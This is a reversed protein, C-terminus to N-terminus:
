KNRGTQLLKNPHLSERQTRHALASLLRTWIPLNRLRIVRAYVTWYPTQRVTADRKLYRQHFRRLHPFFVRFGLAKTTSKESFFFKNIFQFSNKKWHIFKNRSHKWACPSTIWDLLCIRCYQRPFYNDNNTFYKKWNTSSFSFRDGDHHDIFGRRNEEALFRSHLSIYFLRRKSSRACVCAVCLNQLSTM